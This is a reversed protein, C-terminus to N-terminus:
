NEPRPLELILEVRRNAQKGQLTNNSAIPRTDAFGTASLRLPDIGRDQLHRVVSAARGAALEWNSPYRTTNIPSNDAHGQVAIHHETAMMFTPLLTDLLQLGETTLRADGPAFLLENHIRFRMSNDSEIVEVEAGLQGIPLHGFPSKHLLPPIINIKPNISESAPVPQTNPTAPASAATKKASSIMPESVALMVMTMVLLLTMVDLYSLLWSNEEVSNSSKNSEQAWHAHRGDHLSRKKVLARAALLDALSPNWAKRYENYGLKSPM